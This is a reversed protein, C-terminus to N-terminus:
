RELEYNWGFIGGSMNQARFGKNILMMTATHSRAGSACYCIYSKNKDLRNIQTDLENLPLLQSGKIHGQQFEFLMRTDLIVYESDKKEIINYVEEPSINTSVQKVTQKSMVHSGVIVPNLAPSYPPAYALDSDLMSDVKAGFQIATAYTDILKDVGEEGYAQVGIIYNNRTEVVIKFFIKSHGPYYEPKNSATLTQTVVDIGMKKASEETIGTQAFTKEFLKFVSTGLIGNFTANGGTLNIGAVRGQKNATSGLPIWTPQGTLMHKMESCDGAAYINNFNTQLYENVRVTNKLGLEIGSDKLFETNPKVGISMIVMDTEISANKIIVKSVKGDVGELNMISEQSFVNVGHKELLNKAKIRFESDYIGAVDYADILNVNLGRKVLAEAMELGIFGGGVVIANQAGSDIAQIIADADHVNRLTFIGTLEKGKMEPVIPSAGTAILLKDYTDEFDKKSELNRVVVKNQKPIVKIVEHRAKVMIGEDIFNQPTRMVLKQRDKIDGSIYYPLGCGGYSVMDEKQYLIIDASSDERKAKAAAKPGAAVGGIIIIKTM